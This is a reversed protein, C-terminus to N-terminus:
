IRTPLDHSGAQVQPHPILRPALQHTGEHVPEQSRFVGGGAASHCM